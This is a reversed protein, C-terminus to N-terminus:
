GIGILLVLYGIIIPVSVRMIFKIVLYISWIHILKSIDEWINAARKNNLGIFM